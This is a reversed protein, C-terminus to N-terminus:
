SLKAIPSLYAMQPQLKPRVQAEFVKGPPPPTPTSCFHFYLEALSPSSSPLLFFNIEFNNNIEFVLILTKKWSKKLHFLFNRSLINKLLVLCINQALLKMHWLFNLAFCKLCSKEYKSRNTQRGTQEELSSTLGFNDFLKAFGFTKNFM